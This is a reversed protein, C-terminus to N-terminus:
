HPITFNVIDEEEVAYEEDTIERFVAEKGTNFSQSFSPDFDTSSTTLIIDLNNSSNMNIESSMEM